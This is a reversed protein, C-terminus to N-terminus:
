ARGPGDAAARLRPRETLGDGKARVYDLTGYRRHCRDCAPSGAQMPWVNGGCGVTLCSFLPEPDSLGHAARLANWVWRLEADYDDVLPSRAMVESNAILAAAAGTVDDPATANEYLADFAVQAWGALVTPIDPLNGGMYASREATVRGFETYTVEVVHDKLGGGGGLLAWAMLHIPSPSGVIKTHTHEATDDVISGALLVDSLTAYLDPIDALWEEHRDVCPRCILAGRVIKRSHTRHPLPCDGEVWGHGTNGFAGCTECVTESM